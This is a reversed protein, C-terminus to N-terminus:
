RHAGVSGTSGSSSAGGVVGGGGAHAVGAAGGGGRPVGPSAGGGTRPGFGGSGYNAFSAHSLVEAHPAVAVAAGKAAGRSVKSGASAVAPAASATVPTPSKGGMVAGLRVHIPEDAHGFSGGFVSRHSLFADTSVQRGMVVSSPAAAVGRTFEATPSAAGLAAVGGAIPQGSLLASSAPAIAPRAVPTITSAAIPLPAYPGSGAVIPQANRLVGPSVGTVCGAAALTCPAAGGLGAPGVPTWGIWGPGTYWNVLAPNWTDFSNAMWFWGMGADFNWFGYHFPLWGWPEGSIWTYGLGPYSGWLGTAYPSWGAPEYPAWGYGYGPFYAWDGYADLDSWGYLPRTNNFASEDNALATQQDRADAWKDWSDVDIKDTVKFPTGSNLDAVLAHSKGLKETQSSDAAEVQGGFVEVRLRDQSLDTRFEAKGQPTVNVGSVNLLYEDHHDPLVRFSAYGQDLSLHNIHGGQPTLALETFDLTSLEGLRVASGNEFQVEAFSKQGTSISFGEEIPTNMTARAWEDSGPRRVGVTGEVFSLRVVRVHSLAATSPPERTPEANSRASPAFSLGLLLAAPLALFASCPRRM